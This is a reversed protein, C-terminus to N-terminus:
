KWRSKIRILPQVPCTRYRPQDSSSPPPAGVPRSSMSAIESAQSSASRSDSARMSFAQLMADEQTVGEALRPALDDGVCLFLAFCANLLGDIHDRVYANPALLRTQTRNNVAQLPRIWTNIDEAPLERELHQLCRQWINQSMGLTKGNERLQQGAPWHAARAKIVTKM